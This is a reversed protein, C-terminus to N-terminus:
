KLTDCYYKISLRAMEIEDAAKLYSKYREKTNGLVFFTLILSLVRGFFTFAKKSGNRPSKYNTNRFKSVM